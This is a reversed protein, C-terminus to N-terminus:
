RSPLTVIFETGSESSSARIQGGHANAISRCIYLGLGVGAAKGKRNPSPARTLPDFLTPLLDESIPNGENFVTLTIGADGKDVTTLVRGTGYRAANALLNVILQAIRSRDWNGIADGSVNAEFRTEPFSTRVEGVAESYVSAMDIQTASIPLADHLRSQTFVLLDDLMTQMRTAARDIIQATNHSQPRMTADQQLIHSSITIAGLPSRLDHALMAIFLDRGHDTGEAHRRVSESLAQDIAENFRIMEQFADASLEGAREWNRLVTARIARFEAVVSNISFGQALRGSAHKGATTNFEHGRDSAGRSKAEQQAATQPNRIDRAVAQLLEAGADRLQTTTLRQDVRSIARAYDEWEKVLAPLNGDIFDALTM